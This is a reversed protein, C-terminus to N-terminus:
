KLVQKLLRAPVGIVVVGPPVDEVVVAGAGVLAEEGIMIFQRITAGVGVHAGDGVKVTSALKAGTAIHVHNGIICDHEVIAGSNVITNIGVQAGSNIICGPLIQSGSGITAWRSIIASPHSVTLPQLGHGLALEFLCRRPQNNGSSGLGVVFHNVGIRILDPILDDGGLIPVGFLDQGWHSQDTDLIAYPLLLGSAQICDIIVRAHGGGGLVVTVIKKKHYNDGLQKDQM